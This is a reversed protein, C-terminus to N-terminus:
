HFIVVMTHCGYHLIVVMTSYSLWLIVVMTSYSLWLPTHCGYHSLWLSTHCGYHLIVVLANLLCSSNEALFYSSQKTEAWIRATRMYTRRLHYVGAESIHMTGVLRQSTYNYVLADLLCEDGVVLSAHARGFHPSYIGDAPMICSALSQIM